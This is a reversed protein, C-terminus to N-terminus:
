RAPPAHAPPWVRFASATQHDALPLALATGHLWDAGVKAISLPLWGLLAGLCFVCKACEATSIPAAQGDAGVKISILGHASCIEITQAGAEWLSKALVHRNALTIAGVQVLLALAVLLVGIRRIFDTRFAALSVM